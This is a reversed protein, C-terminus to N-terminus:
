IRVTLSGSFIKQIEGEANLILAEGQPGIGKFIGQIYSNEDEYIIVNKQSHGCYKEWYNLLPQTNLRHSLVFSFFEEPIQQKFHPPLGTKESTLLASAPTKFLPNKFLPDVILNVGIGVGVWDESYFDLLIGACKGQGQILIDNPWKLTLDMSFKESLFQHLLCAIELPTLSIVSHPKLSFTFALNNKGDVWTHDGRGKGRTQKDTTVILSELNKTQQFFEKMYQQTSPIEKLHIKKFVM